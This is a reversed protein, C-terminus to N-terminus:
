ITAYKACFSARHVESLGHERIRDRHMKTGYGKHIEFGYQPFKRALRVMYRDRRVKAVISAAAIVPIKEDGKIITKQAFQAPASLSGDLLIMEHSGDRLSEHKKAASHLLRSVGARIASM